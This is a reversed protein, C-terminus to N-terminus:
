INAQGWIQIDGGGAGSPWIRQEQNCGPDLIKRYKRISGHQFWLILPQEM